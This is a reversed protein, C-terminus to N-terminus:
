VLTSLPWQSELQCHRSRVILNNQDESEEEQPTNDDEVGDYAM